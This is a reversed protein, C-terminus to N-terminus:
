RGGVRSSVSVSLALIPMAISNYRLKEKGQLGSALFVSLILSFGFVTRYHSDLRFDFAFDILFLGPGSLLFFLVTFLFFLVTGIAIPSFFSSDQGTRNQGRAKSQKAKATGVSM